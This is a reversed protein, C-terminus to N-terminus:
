NQKQLLIFDCIPADKTILGHGPSQQLMVLVIWLWVLNVDVRSWLRSNLFSPDKFISLM